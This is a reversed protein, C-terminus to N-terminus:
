SALRQLAPASAAAEIAEGSIQSVGLDILEPILREDGVGDCVLALGDASLARSFQDVHDEAHDLEAVLMRADLRVQRFGCAKLAGSDLSLRTIDTLCFGIGQGSLRGIIRAQEEGGTQISAQTLGLLLRARWHPREALQQELRALAQPAAALSRALSLRVIAQPLTRETAQLRHIAANFLAALHSEADGQAPTQALSYGVLRRHPLNVIRQVSLRPPGSPLAAPAPAKTAAALDSTFQEFRLDFPPTAPAPTPMEMETTMTLVPEPATPAAEASRAEHILAELGAMRRALDKMCQALALAQQRIDDQQRLTRRAERLQHVVVALLAAFVSLGLGLWVTAEPWVPDLSVGGALGTVSLGAAGILVAGAALGAAISRANM